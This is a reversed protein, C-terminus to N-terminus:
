PIVTSYVARSRTWRPPSRKRAAAPADRLSPNPWRMKGAHFSTTKPCTDEESIFREASCAPCTSVDLGSAAKSDGKEYPIRKSGLEEKVFADHATGALHFPVLKTNSACATLSQIAQTSSTAAFAVTLGTSGARTTPITLLDTLTQTPHHAATSPEWPADATATM